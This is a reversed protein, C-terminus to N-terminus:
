PEGGEVTSKRRGRKARNVAKAVADYQKDLLAAIENMGIGARHLLLEPKTPKEPQTLLELLVLLMARHYPRSEDEGTRM